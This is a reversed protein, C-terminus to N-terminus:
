LAPHVSSRTGYQVRTCPAQLHANDLFESPPFTVQAKAINAEGTNTTLTTRLAPNGAHKTSGSFGVTLKPGFSLTGCDAVQYHESRDAM